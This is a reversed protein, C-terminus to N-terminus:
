MVQGGIENIIGAEGPQPHWCVVILRAEDAGTSLYAHGLGSDFYVSDGPDLVRPEQGEIQFTLQGELMYVFEEGPHKIIRKFAEVSHAKITAFVPMMRKRARASCLMNMVYYDNEIVQAQGRREVTVVQSIENESSETLLQSMGMDFAFALKLINDYTLSIIGREAKSITSLALGSRRGVEALTWKNAKRLRRLKKGFAVRDVLAQATANRFHDVYSEINKMSMKIAKRSKVKSLDSAQRM